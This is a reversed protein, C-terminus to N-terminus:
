HIFTKHFVTGASSRFVEANIGNHIVKLPYIQLFSEELIGSLWDSVPVLTLNSLSTFLKKKFNFNKESRDILWSAPYETKQPCSYCQTKWKECGV